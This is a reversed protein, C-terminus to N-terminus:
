EAVLLPRDGQMQRSEGRIELPQFFVVERTWRLLMQSAEEVIVAVELGVVERADMWAMQRMPDAQRAREPVEDDDKRIRRRIREERDWDPHADRWSRRARQHLEAQCSKRGCTKQRKGVRPHPEFWKGCVSCPKSRCRWRRGKAGAM